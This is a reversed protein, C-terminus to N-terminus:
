DWGGFRGTQGIVECSTAAGNNRTASVSVVVLPSLFDDGTMTSLAHLDPVTKTGSMKEPPYSQPIGDPMFSM